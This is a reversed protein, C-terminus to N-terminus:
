RTSPWSATPSCTTATGRSATSISRRRDPPPLVMGAKQGSDRGGMRECRRRAIPTRQGRTTDSSALNLIPHFIWRVKGTNHRLPIHGPSGPLTETISSGMILLDEFVVGSHERQRETKGRSIWDKVCISAAMRASRSSRRAPRGTWRGSAATASSCATRTSPSVAIGSAPALAAGGSPDSKWVERGTAADVAIVKLTPTTAYLVGDVVVPNSQMESGKFSDHSDYIWAVQLKSVNDRNINTLASYRINDVGGNIPWDTTTQALTVAIAAAIVLWSLGFGRFGFVKGTM